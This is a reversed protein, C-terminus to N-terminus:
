KKLSLIYRIMESVDKKALQPHPAMPIQGWNGAGGKIVKDTLKTLATPNNKYRSAIDLFAPGVLKQNVSHCAKCDSQSM